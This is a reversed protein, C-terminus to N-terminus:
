AKLLKVGKNNLSGLSSLGLILINLIHFSENRYLVINLAYECL